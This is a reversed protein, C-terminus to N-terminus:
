QARGKLLGWSELIKLARDLGEAVACFGGADELAALFECQAASVRGGREAKLELGFIKGDRVLLFDPVGPRM